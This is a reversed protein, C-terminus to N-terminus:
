SRWRGIIGGGSSTSSNGDRIAHSENISKATTEQQAMGEGRKARSFTGLLYGEDQALEEPSLSELRDSSNGAAWARSLGQLGSGPHPHRAKSFLNMIEQQWKFEVTDVEEEYNSLPFDKASLNELGPDDTELDTEVTQELLRAQDAPTPGTQSQRTNADHLAMLEEHEMAKEQQQTDSM